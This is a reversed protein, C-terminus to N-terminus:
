QAGSNSMGSGSAGNPGQPTGLSYFGAAQAQGVWDTLGSAYRTDGGAASATAATNHKMAEKVLLAGVAAVAGIKLAKGSLLNPNRRKRAM